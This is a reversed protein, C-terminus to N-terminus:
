VCYCVKPIVDYKRAGWCSTKDWLRFGWSGSLTRDGGGHGNMDKRSGM